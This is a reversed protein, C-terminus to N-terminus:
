LKYIEEGFRPLTQGRAPCTERTARSAASWEGGALAWARRAFVDSAESGFRWQLVRAMPRALRVLIHRPRSVARIIFVVEGGNDRTLLFAEEGAEVHEVTTGYVWGYQTEGGRILRVVKNANIWWIGLFRAAMGVLRGEKWEGPALHGDLWSLRMMAAEDVARCAAEWLGPRDGLRLRYEDVVFGAPAPCEGLTMGVSDYSLPADRHAALFEPWTSDTMRSFAIM